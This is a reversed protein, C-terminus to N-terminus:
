RVFFALLLAAMAGCACLGILYGVTFEKKMETKRRM